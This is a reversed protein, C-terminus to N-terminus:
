IFAPTGYPTLRQWGHGTSQTGPGTYVITHMRYHNNGTSTDYYDAPNITVLPDAGGAAGL